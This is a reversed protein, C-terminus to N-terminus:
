LAAGLATTDHRDAQGNDDDDRRELSKWRLEKEVQRALSDEM